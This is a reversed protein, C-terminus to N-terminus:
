RGKLFAPGGKAKHAAKAKLHEAWQRELRERIARNHPLEARAMIAAHAKAYRERQESESVVSEVGNCSDCWGGDGPRREGCSLCRSYPKRDLLEVAGRADDPIWQSSM